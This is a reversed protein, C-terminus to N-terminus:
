VNTVFVKSNSNEPVELFKLFRMLVVVSAYVGEIVADREIVVRCDFRWPTDVQNSKGHRKRTKLIM